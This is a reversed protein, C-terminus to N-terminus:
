PFKGWQPQLKSLPDMDGCPGGQPCRLDEGLGVPSPHPTLGPGLEM